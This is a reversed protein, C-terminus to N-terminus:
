LEIARPKGTARQIELEDCKPISLLFEGLSKKPHKLQQYEEVSVVIVADQNRRMICQPKGQLAADIVSSLKNKAEHLQWKKMYGGKNIGLNALSTYCLKSYENM